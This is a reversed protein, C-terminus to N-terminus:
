DLDIEREVLEGRKAQAIADDLKQKNNTNKIEHLTAESSTFSDLSMLVFSQNNDSNVLLIEDEHNLLAILSDTRNKFEQYSITRM